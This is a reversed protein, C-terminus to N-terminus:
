FQDDNQQFLNLEANNRIVNDELSRQKQDLDQLIEQKKHEVMQIEQNIMNIKCKNELRNAYLEQHELIRQTFLKEFADQIEKQISQLQTKFGKKDESLLLNSEKERIQDFLNSNYFITKFDSLPKRQFDKLQQQYNKLQQIHQNFQHAIIGKEHIIEQIKKMEKINGLHNLLIVEIKNTRQEEILKQKFEQVKITRELEQVKLQDIQAEMQLIVKSIDTIAIIDSTNSVQIIDNEEDQYSLEINKLLPYKLQIEQQLDEYSQVGEFTIQENQYRIQIDM